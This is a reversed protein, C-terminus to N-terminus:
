GSGVSYTPATRPAATPRISNDMYERPPQINEKDSTCVTRCEVSWVAATNATTLSCTTPVPGLERTHQSSPPQSHSRRPPHRTGGGLQVRAPRDNGNCCLLDNESDVRTCVSLDDLQSRVVLENDRSNQRQSSSSSYPQSSQQQRAASPDLTSSSRAGGCPALSLETRGTICENGRM